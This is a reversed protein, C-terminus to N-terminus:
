VDLQQQGPPGAKDQRDYAAEDGELYGAEFPDAGLHAEGQLLASTAEWDAPGLGMRRGRGTFQDLAEDPVELRRQETAYAWHLAHDVRRSKPARALLMAAHVLALREPRSANRRKKAREWVAHLAAIVAPAEPWAPGVDESCILELRAWAYAGFGSRDLEATWWVAADEQGRRVAKQLASVVEDLRYGRSTAQAGWRFAM